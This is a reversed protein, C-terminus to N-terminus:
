SPPLFSSSPSYLLFSFPSLLSSLLPSSLLPSSLLPSSLLPSSLLPSEGPIHRIQEVLKRLAQTVKAADGQLKDLTKSDKKSLKSSILL